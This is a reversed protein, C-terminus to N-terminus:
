RGAVKAGESSRGWGPLSVSSAGSQSVFGNLVDQSAASLNDFRCGARQQGDERMVRLITASAEVPRPSTPLHFSLRVFDGVHLRGEFRFIMGTASIQSSVGAFEGSGTRCTVPTRVDVTHNRLRERLLSGQTSTILRMLKGRDLPKSLYFQAGAAFADHVGGTANDAESGVLVIPTTANQASKRIRRSMAAGNLGPMALDLFIGDFKERDILDSAHLPSRTGRAAIGTSKLADCILELSSANNEIVLANLQM